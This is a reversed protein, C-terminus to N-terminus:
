NSRQRLLHRARAQPLVIKKTERDLHPINEAYEIKASKNQEAVTTQYLDMAYAKQVNELVDEM